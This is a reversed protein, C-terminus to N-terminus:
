KAIFTKGNRIYLRGRQPVAIRQGQLNFLMSVQPNLTTAQV